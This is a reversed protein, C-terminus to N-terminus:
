AAEGSFMERLRDVERQPMREQGGFRITKAQELEIAKRLAKYSVGLVEAAAPISYGAGNRRRTIPKAPPPKLMTM